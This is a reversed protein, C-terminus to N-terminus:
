EATHLSLFKSIYLPFFLENELMAASDNIPINSGAQSQCENSSSGQVGGGGCGIGNLKWSVSKYFIHFQFAKLIRGPEDTHTKNSFTKDQTVFATV